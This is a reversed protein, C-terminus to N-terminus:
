IMMLADAEDGGPGAGLDTAAAGAADGAEAGGDVGGAVDGAEDGAAKDGVTEDGSLQCM